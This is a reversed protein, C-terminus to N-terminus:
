TTTEQEPSPLYVCFTSGKNLESRVTMFGGHERVIGHAVSLGLGTGEGVDKTTFFPEFVRAITAADMGAGTDEVYLCRYLQEGGGEGAPPKTRESRMGVAVRGGRPTAQIANAVLNTLVQQLQGEDVHAPGLAATEDLTLTVGRKDALPRLLSLVNRATALLDVRTRAPPRKRAFDLLQRIIAAIRKTQEVVTAANEVVEVGQAEGRVIMQARGAVVALPTGIEHAIGAALGGVTALRDAHRVQEQMADRAAREAEIRDRNDKLLECTRNLEDAIVGIEDNRQLVLPGSLDGASIRRLKDQLARLPRAILWSGLVIAVLVTSVLLTAAFRVTGYVTDRVFRDRADLSESVALVSDVEDPRDAPVAAITVMAGELLGKRPREHFVVAGDRLQRIEAPGVELAALNTENAALMLWRVRFHQARVNARSVIAAGAAHGHARAVTSVAQALAETFAAADKRMDTDFHDIEREVRSYTSAAPLLLTALFLAALFKATLKVAALTGPLHGAAMPTIQHRGGVLIPGGGSM